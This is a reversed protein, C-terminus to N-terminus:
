SRRIGEFETEFLEEMVEDKIAYTQSEAPFSRQECEQKYQKFADLM